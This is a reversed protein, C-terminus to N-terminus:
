WIWAFSIKELRVVVTWRFDAIDGDLKGGTRHVARWQGKQLLSIDLPSFARGSLFGHYSCTYVGKQEKPMLM